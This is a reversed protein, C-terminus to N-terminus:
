LVVEGVTLNVNENINGFESKIRIQSILHNDQYRLSVLVQLVGPIAALRKARRREEDRLNVPRPGKHRQDVGHEPSYFLSGLPTLETDLVIKRLTSFGGRLALDKDATLEVDKFPSNAIDLLQDTPREYSTLRKGYFRQQTIAVGNSFPKTCNLLYFVDERLSMDTRLLLRNPALVEIEAIRPSDFPIAPIAWNSPQKQAKTFDTDAEVLILNRGRVIVKTVTYLTASLAGVPPPSTMFRGDFLRTASGASGGDILNVEGIHFDLSGVDTFQPDLETDTGSASPNFNSITHYTAGDSTYSNSTTAAGGPLGYRGISDVVLVNFFTAGTLTNIVGYTVGAIADGCRYVTCNELAVSAGTDLRIAHADLTGTHHDCRAFISSAVDATASAVVGLGINCDRFMSELVTCDYLAACVTWDHAEIGQLTIDATGAFEQIGDLGVGPGGGQLELGRVAITAGWDIVLGDTAGWTLLPREDRNVTSPDTDWRRGISDAGTISAGCDWTVSAVHAYPTGGAHNVILVDASTLQGNAHTLTLWPDISGGSNADSGISSDLYRDVM